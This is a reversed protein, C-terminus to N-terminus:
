YFRHLAIVERDQNFMGYGVGVGVYCGTWNYVPPSPPLPRAKVPIDAALASGGANLAV